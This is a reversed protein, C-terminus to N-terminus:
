AILVLGKRTKQTHLKFHICISINLLVLKKFAFYCKVAVIKHFRVKLVINRM